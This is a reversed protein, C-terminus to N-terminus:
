LNRIIKYLNKPYIENTNIDIPFINKYTSSFPILCYYYINLGDPSIEVDSLKCDVYSSLVDIYKDLINKLIQSISIDQNELKFAPPDLKTHDCSLVKYKMNNKDFSLIYVVINTQM